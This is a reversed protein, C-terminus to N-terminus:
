YIIIIPYLFHLAIEELDRLHAPSSDEAGPKGFLGPVQTGEFRHPPLPERGGARGLCRWGRGACRCGAGVETLSGPSCLFAPLRAGHGGRDEDSVVAELEQVAACRDACAAREIGGRQPVELAERGAVRQQLLARVRGGGIGDAAVEVAPDFAILAQEAAPGLLGDRRQHERDVARDPAGARHFPRQQAGGPFQQGVIRGVQGGIGQQLEAGLAAQAREVLRRRQIVVAQAEGEHGRCRLADGLEVVLGLLGGDEVGDAVGVQIQQHVLAALGLREAPAEGLGASHRHQVEGAMAMVSPALRGLRRRPGHQQEFVAGEALPGGVGRRQEAGQARGRGPQQTREAQRVAAAGPRSASGRAARGGCRSLLCGSPPGPGLTPSEGACESALARIWAPSGAMM